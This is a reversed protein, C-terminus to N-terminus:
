YRVEATESPKRHGGLGLRKDSDELARGGEWDANAATVATGPDSLGGETLWYRTRKEIFADKEAQQEKTLKDSSACASLGVVLVLALCFHTLLQSLSPLSKRM